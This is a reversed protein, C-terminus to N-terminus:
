RAVRELVLTGGRAFVTRFAPSRLLQARDIWPGEATFTRPGVYVYRVDFSDLLSDTRRDQGAEDVHRALYVADAWEPHDFQQSKLAIVPAVGYLSYMWPSGDQPQNVVRERPGIHAAMFAFAARQDAGVLSFADYNRRLTHLSSTASTVLVLVALVATATRWLPPRTTGSAPRAGALAVGMLPLALFALIYNIRFPNSYWSSTASILLDFPSWTLLVFLLGFLAFGVLWTRAQRRRLCVAIGLWLAVTAAPVSRPPVYAVQFVVQAVAYPLATGGAPHDGGHRESVGGALQALVPVLLAVSVTFPAAVRVVAAGAARLDRRLVPRLILLCGALVAAMTYESTHLAAIGTLALGGALVQRGSLRASPAHLILVLAGPTVAFGALLTYGGWYSTSFTLTPSVAAILACWAAASPCRPFLQRTLAYMGAPLALVALGVSCLTWAAAVDLGTLRVLFAAVEHLALPYFNAGHGGSLVDHPIVVSPDLTASRAIRAVFLGHNYGDDHPPVAGRDAIGLLWLAAGAGWALVVSLPVAVRPGVDHRRLVLLAAGSLALVAAALRGDVPLGAATLAEGAVYFVAM